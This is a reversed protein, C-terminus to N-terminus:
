FALLWVLLGLPIVAVALLLWEARTMGRALRGCRGAGSVLGAGRRLGAGCGARDHASLM